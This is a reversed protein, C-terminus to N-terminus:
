PVTGTLEKVVKVAAEEGTRVCDSIGVGRYASGALAIGPLRGLAAGVREILAEHGVQYQPMSRPHRWIRCFLPTATVGLLSALEHRVNEEMAADGDEYLEAQLTGGVFARLLVGGAPARGPYKVSSFTCAMIKRREVAPVVFGFSDLPRPFDEARYALSVTSTSAYSIKGLETAADHAADRLMAAAGFAPAAIIVAAAELEDVGASIRWATNNEDRMVASVPANLRISGEPLRHGLAEVLEQMGGALTVFLSWRAGSGPRAGRSRRRQAAWMAWAVSRNLREM